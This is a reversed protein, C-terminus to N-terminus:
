ERVLALAEGSLSDLVEEVTKLTEVEGTEYTKVEEAEQTEDDLFYVKLGPVEGKAFLHALKTVIYDSHTTLL